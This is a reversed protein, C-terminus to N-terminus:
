DPDVEKGLFQLANKTSKIHETAYIDIVIHVGGNRLAKRKKM